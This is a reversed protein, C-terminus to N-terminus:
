VHQALILAGDLASGKPPTLTARLDPDLHPEYAASLAGPACFVDGPQWGLARISRCIWGAGRHLLARGVVDGQGAARTVGRALSGFEISTAKAAFASLGHAGGFEELLARTLASAEALGDGAHLSWRLAERGLWAASAEDGLALGHGGLTRLRDQTVRAFFSGTGLAAFCGNGAGLAGVVAARRDEEILTTSLPLLTALQEAQKPTLVGAVGLYCPLDHLDEPALQAKQALHGLAEIIADACARPNVTFNSGRGIYDVRRAETEWAIRCHTGGCDVGIHGSLSM